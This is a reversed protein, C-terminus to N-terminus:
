GVLKFGGVHNSEHFGVEGSYSKDSHFFFNEYFCKIIRM